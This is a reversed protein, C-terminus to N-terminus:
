DTVKLRAKATVNMSAYDQQIYKLYGTIAIMAANDTTYEFKPIYTSWGWYKEAKSLRKRIETNASVGGAIAINKIGTEKVANKLKDMLIEVITHQISACIDNRNEAIFNPNNREQKQIFYLIGTKLGSFSFDLNGVKPKTFSYAKPNGLQAYKDILPGGPYPLGLIKASKDFAEGVADDITEGLIEMEFYNTLKVIQTHGGSITLCIFPFSPLKTNEESIFHALIHAQMHNIDLLPINLALAMSKAFSTGVLLSGMLGPGKTFAIASLEEKKINANKLAQEVVPVINQQHARSALEPVVGGYKAHVEQNATVNSLITTNSIVAASTDDCSSEIALIYVPSKM